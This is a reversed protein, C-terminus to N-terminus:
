QPLGFKINKVDLKIMCITLKKTSAEQFKHIRLVAVNNKAFEYPCKFFFFVIIMIATLRITAALSMQITTEM